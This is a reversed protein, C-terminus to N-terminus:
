LTHLVWKNGKSGPGNQGPTCTSTLTEDIPWIFKNLFWKYEIPGHALFIVICFIYVHVYM